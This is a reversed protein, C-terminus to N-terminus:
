PRNPWPPGLRSHPSVLRTGGGPGQWSQARLVALPDGRPTSTPSKPRRMWAHGAAVCAGIGAADDRGGGPETALCDCHRRRCVFSCAEAVPRTHDQNSVIAHKVREPRRQISCTPSWVSSPHEGRTAQTETSVAVPNSSSPPVQPVARSGATTRYHLLPICSYSRSATKLRILPRPPAVSRPRLHSGGFFLRDASGLPYPYRHHM